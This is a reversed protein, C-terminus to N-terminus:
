YSISNPDEDKKIEETKCSYTYTGPNGSSGSIGTLSFKNEKPKQELDNLCKACINMHRNYDYYRTKKDCFGCRPVNPTILKFEELIDTFNSSLVNVKLDFEFYGRDYGYREMEKDILKDVKDGIKFLMDKDSM